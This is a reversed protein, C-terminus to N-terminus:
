RTCQPVYSDFQSANTSYETAGDVCTYTLSTLESDNDPLYNNFAFGENCTVVLRRDDASASTIAGQLPVLLEFAWRTCQNASLLRRRGALASIPQFYVNVHMAQEAHAANTM